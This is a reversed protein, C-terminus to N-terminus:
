PKELSIGIDTIGELNGDRMAQEFSFSYTGKMPFVIGKRLLVRYDRVRGRGDGLWFGMRDALIFEITDRSTRGGPFETEVFFYINSYRYETTHRLDLYFDFARATDEIDFRFTIISDQNWVDGPISKNDHYVIGHRCSALFLLLLILPSIKKLLDTM